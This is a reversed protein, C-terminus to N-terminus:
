KAFFAAKLKYFGFRRRRTLHAAEPKQERIISKMLGCEGAWDLEQKVIVNAEKSAKSM